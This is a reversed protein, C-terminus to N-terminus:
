PNLRKQFIPCAKGIDHMIAGFKAIRKDFGLSDAIKETAIAVHQLHTHLPTYDPKGKAKIHECVVM